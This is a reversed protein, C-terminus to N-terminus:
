RVDTQTRRRHLGLRQQWRPLPRLLDSNSGRILLVPIAWTPPTVGKRASFIARRAKSVSADVSGTAVLESYFTRVFVLADDNPIEHQMALVLPVGKSALISALSPIGLQSAGGATECANLFVMHLHPGSIAAALDLVDLRAHHGKGDELILGSKDAHGAFHLIHYVGRRLSDLLEVPTAHEIVEVDVQRSSGLVETLTEVERGIMPIPYERSSATAVLVNLRRSAKWRPLPVASIARRSVSYGQILALFQRIHPDYLMEWPLNVLEDDVDLRLRLTTRRAREKSRAYIDQLASDGFIFDFLDSGAAYIEETGPSRSFLAKCTEKFEPLPKPLSVVADGSIQEPGTACIRYKGTQVTTRVEVELEVPKPPRSLLRFLVFGLIAFSIVLVAPPIAVKIPSGAPIQQWLSPLTIRAEYVGDNATGAYLTKRDHPDSVVVTIGAEVPLISAEWGAEQLMLTVSSPPPIRQLIKNDDPTIRVLLFGSSQYPYSWIAIQEGPESKIEVQRWGMDENSTRYYLEDAETQAFLTWRASGLILRQLATSSALALRKIRTPSQEDPSWSKGGDHSLYLQGDTDTAFLTKTSSEWLLNDVIQRLQQSAVREWRQERLKYLGDDTGALLVHESGFRLYILSRVQWASRPLGDRLAQWRGSDRARVYVGDGYTGAYIMDMHDDAALASISRAQLPLGQGFNQWEGDSTRRFVGCCATGAYLEADRPLLCQVTLPCGSVHAPMWEGNSDRVLIGQGDTGAILRGEDTQLLSLVPAGIQSELQWNLGGDLSTYLQGSYTVAYIMEPTVTSFVLDEVVSDFAQEGKQWTEGGDTSRYMEKGWSSVVLHDIGEPDVAMAIISIERDVGQTARQWTEGGDMSHFFGGQTGAYLRPVTERSVFLTQIREAPSGQWPDLREWRDSRQAPRSLVYIGEQTGAYLFEENEGGVAVQTAALTVGLGRRLGAWTGGSTRSYVGQGLTAVFVQGDHSACISKVDLARDPEGRGTSDSRPQSDLHHWSQGGDTSTLVGGNLMGAYLKRPNTPDKALAVVFSGKPGELSEWHPKEIAPRICGGLGLMMLLCILWWRWANGASVLSVRIRFSGQQRGSM